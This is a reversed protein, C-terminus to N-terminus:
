NLEENYHAREGGICKPRTRACVIHAGGIVPHAIRFPVAVSKLHMGILTDGIDIGAHAQIYEVAVPDNMNKWAATSFSGGAKPMPMVNVEEYGYKEATTREIILARNLHECCQTAVCIGANKFEEYMANFVAEGLEVGSHSGIEYSAIESTSCGIVVLNGQKLKAQELFEKVVRKADLIENEFMELKEERKWGAQM